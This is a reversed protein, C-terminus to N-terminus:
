FIAWLRNSPPPPHLVCSNMRDRYIYTPDDDLALRDPDSDPDLRKTMFSTRTRDRQDPDPGLGFGVKKGYPQDPIRDLVPDSRKTM